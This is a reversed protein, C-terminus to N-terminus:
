IEMWWLKFITEKYFLNKKLYSKRKVSKNGLETTFPPPILKIGVGMKKWPPPPPNGNGDERLGSRSLFSSFIRM